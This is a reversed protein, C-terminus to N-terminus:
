LTLAESRYWCRVSRATPQPRTPRALLEVQDAVVEGRVAMCADVSPTCVVVDLQHEGRGVAGPQVPDHSVLDCSFLLIRRLLNPQTSLRLVRDLACPGDGGRRADRTVAPHSARPLLGLPEREM